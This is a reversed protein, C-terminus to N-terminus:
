QGQCSRDPATVTVTPVMGVPQGQYYSIAYRWKRTAAQAAKDFDDRVGREVCSSVVYGREDIGLELIAVGCPYPKAVKTLDPEVRTILKPPLPPHGGVRVFNRLAAPCCAVEAKCPRPTASHAAPANQPQPGQGRSPRGASFALATVAAVAVAVGLSLRTSM